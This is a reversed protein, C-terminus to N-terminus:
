GVSWDAYSSLIAFESPDLDLASSHKDGYQIRYDGVQEGLVGLPNTVLRASIMLAIGMVSAPVTALGSVFTARISAIRGPWMTNPLGQADAHLNRSVYGAANWAYTSPDVVTWTGSVDRTEVKTVSTVPFGPLLFVVSGRAPGDMVYDTYSTSGSIGPNQLYDTVVGSAIAAAMVARPNDILSPQGLFTALDTDTILTM